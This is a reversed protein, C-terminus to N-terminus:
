VNIPMDHNIYQKIMITVDKQVQCKYTGFYKTWYWTYCWCNYSSKCNLLVLVYRDVNIYQICCFTSIFKDQM